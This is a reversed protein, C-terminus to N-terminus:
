TIINMINVGIHEVFNFTYNPHYLGYMKLFCRLVYMESIGM